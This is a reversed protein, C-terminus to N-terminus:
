RGDISEMAVPLDDSGAAVFTLRASQSVSVIAALEKALLRLRPTADTSTRRRRAVDIQRRRAVAMLGAEPYLEGLAM